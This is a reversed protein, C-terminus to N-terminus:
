DTKRFENSGSVDETPFPAKVQVVQLVDCPHYRLIQISHNFAVEVGDLLRLPAVHTVPRDSNTYLTQRIRKLHHLQRVLALCRALEVLINEFGDVKSGALGGHFKRLLLTVIFCVRARRRGLSHELKIHPSDLRRVSPIPSPKLLLNSLMTHAVRQQHGRHGCRTSGLNQPIVLTGLRERAVHVITTDEGSFKSNYVLMEEAVESGRTVPSFTNAVFDDSVTARDLIDSFKGFFNTVDVLCDPFDGLAGDQVHSGIATSEDALALAHIHVNALGTRRLQRAHM